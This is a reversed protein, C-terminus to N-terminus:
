IQILKLDDQIENIIDEKFAYFSLLLSNLYEIGSLFNLKIQSNLIESESDLFFEMLDEPSESYIEGYELIEGLISPILISSYENLSEPIEIKEGNIELSIKLNELKKKSVRFIYRGIYLIEKGESDKIERLLNELIKISLREFKRLPNLNPSISIGFKIEREGIRIKGKMM